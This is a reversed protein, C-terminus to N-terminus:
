IQPGTGIISATAPISPSHPTGAWSPSVSRVHGSANYFTYGYGTGPRRYAPDLVRPPASVTDRQAATGDSLERAQEQLSREGLGAQTDLAEWYYFTVAFVLGCCFTAFLIVILRRRLSHAPLWCGFQISGGSM